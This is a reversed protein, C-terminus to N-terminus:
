TYNGLSKWTLDERDLLQDVFLGIVGVHEDAQWQCTTYGEWTFRNSSSHQQRGSSSVRARMIDHNHVVVRRPRTPNGRLVSHRLPGCLWPRLVTAMRDHSQRMNYNLRLIFCMKLPMICDVDPLLVHTCIHILSFHVTFPDWVLIRVLVFTNNPFILRSM